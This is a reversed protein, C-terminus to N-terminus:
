TAPVLAHRRVYEIASQVAGILVVDAGLTSAAIRPPVRTYKGIRREIQQIVPHCVRAIEGSIIITQPNLICALTSLAIAFHEGLRDIIDCALPDGNAAASFVDHASPYESGPKWYDSPSSQQAGEELADRAWWRALAAMGMSCGVGEVHELYEMEGLGGSHGHQLVGDLVVGAGLGEDALITVFSSDPETLGSHQEARAALNADNEILAPWGQANEIIKAPDIRVTDWFPNGPPVNGDKDVPAAVGLCIAQVAGPTVDAQKLADRVMTRVPQLRSSSIDGHAFTTRARGSIVGSLDAVVATVSNISLDVGVVYGADARFSFQRARRGRAAAPTAAPVVERIWGLALLDDCVGLVTARTLGTREILEAATLIQEPGHTWFIDLVVRVNSTRLLQPSTAAAGPSTGNRGTSERLM